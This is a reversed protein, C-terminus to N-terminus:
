KRGGRGKAAPKDDENFDILTFNTVHVETRYQAEGDKDDWTRTRLKGDILLRNGKRVYKGITEADKDWFVLTHWETREQEDGKKDKWKETTALRLSCVPKSTSTNNVEPDNGVNGFLQVRNISRM